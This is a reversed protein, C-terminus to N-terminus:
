KLVNTPMVPVLENDTNHLKVSGSSFPIVVAFPKDPDLDIKTVENGNDFEIRKVKDKNMSILASGKTSCNFKRVSDQIMPDAGGSIFFYGLYLGDHKVYLSYVHKDFAQDYFLLAGLEDDVSKAAEWASAIQQSTRADQELNSQSVGFVDQTYLYLFVLILCSVIGLVSKLLRRTM